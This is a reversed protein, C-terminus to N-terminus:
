SLGARRVIVVPTREDQNGAPNDNLAAELWRRDVGESAAVVWAGSLHNADVIAAGCRLRVALEAALGDPDRPGFVMHHDNPPLAAAVDDILATGQGAVRYFWGRRGFPKTVIAAVTGAVIRPRGAEMIAGQM